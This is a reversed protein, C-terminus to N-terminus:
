EVGRAEPKENRDRNRHGVSGSGGALGSGLSILM